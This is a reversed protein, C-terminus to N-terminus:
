FTKGINERRQKLTRKVFIYLFSATKPCEGGFWSGQEIRPVLKLAEKSSRAYVKDNEKYFTEEMAFDKEDLSSKKTVSKVTCCYGADWKGGGKNEKLAITLRGTQRKFVGLGFEEKIIHSMTRPAIDMERGLIKTKDIEISLEQFWINRYIAVPIQM